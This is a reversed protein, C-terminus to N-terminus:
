ESSGGGLGFLSSAADSRPLFTNSPSPQAIHWVGGSYVFLMSIGAGMGVMSGAVATWGNRWEQVVETAGIGPTEVGVSTSGDELNMADM